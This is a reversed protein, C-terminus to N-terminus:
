SGAAPLPASAPATSRWRRGGSRARWGAGCSTRGPFAGGRGGGDAGADPRGLQVAVADCRARAISAAQGPFEVGGRAHRCPGDGGGAQGAATQFRHPAAHGAQGPHQWRAPRWLPQWFTEIGGQRAGVDIHLLDCAPQLGAAPQINREAQLARGAAAFAGKQAMQRGPQAQFRHLLAARVQKRWPHAHRLALDGVGKGFGAVAAGEQDEVFRIRQQGVPAERLAAPLDPPHVLHEGPHFAM